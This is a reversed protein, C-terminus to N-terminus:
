LATLDRLNSRRPVLFWKKKSTFNKKRKLAGENNIIICVSPCKSYGCSVCVSVGCRVGCGRGGGGRRLQFSIPLHFLGLFPAFCVRYCTHSTSITCWAARRKESEPVAGGKHPLFTAAVGYAWGALVGDGVTWGRGEGESCKLVPYPRNRTTRSGEITEGERVPINM